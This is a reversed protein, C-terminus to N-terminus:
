VPRGGKEGARDDGARDAVVKVKAPRLVEENIVYGKLVESVITGSAQGTEDPSVVEVVEHLRPDFTHGVAEIPRVGLTRLQELIQRQAMRLGEVLPHAALDDGAYALARELTDLVSLILSVMNRRTREVAEHRDRAALKKYNELDAASHLFHQWNRQAEERAERAEERAERLKQKLDEMTLGAWEDEQGPGGGETRPGGPSVEADQRDDRDERTM